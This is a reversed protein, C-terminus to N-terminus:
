QREALGARWYGMFAVAKRDIGTESVLFRRISKVAASEGAIWAYFPREAEGPSDWLLERDVDLAELRDLEAADRIRSLAPAIAGRNAAVWARVAPDLLTGVAAGHRPLWTIAAANRDPAVADAADPIEVFATARVDAPLSELIAGIAPAATEDGALLVERADGPHWDIGIASDLSRADPGVVVLEDGPAATAIWRAAPGPEEGAGPAHVVVDVDLERAEPRIRRVTYTRFPSRQEPPLARLRAYWDGALLAAEDDVGFDAYGRDPVPFVIKIRQDLGDRGFWALEDGTFTVRRLHPGLTAIRAITLRYPRYAARADREVSLTLM